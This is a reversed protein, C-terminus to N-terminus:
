GPTEIIRAAGWEALSIMAELRPESQSKLAHKILDSRKREDAIQMAESLMATVTEKALRVAAVDNDIEWRNGSWIIWKRWEYVFRINKGHRQVFRRANGLDTHFDSHSDVPAQDTSQRSQEDRRKRAERKAINAVTSRVKEDSLPPTNHQNWELCAAVAQDESMNRPGLCYGARRTLARTRQTDPYGQNM